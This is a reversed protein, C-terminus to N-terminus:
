ATRLSKVSADADGGTAIRTGVARINSALARVIAVASTEDKKAGVPRLRLHRTAVEALIELERAAERRIRGALAIAIAAERISTAESRAALEDDFKDLLAKATRLADRRDPAADSLASKALKRCVKIAKGIKM